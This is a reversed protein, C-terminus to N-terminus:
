QWNGIDDDNGEVGDPGASYLDFSHPLKEGPCKYIYKHGWPDDKIRIAEIYPGKWISVNSPQIILAQLGQETTPYSGSQLEYDGLAVSFTNIDMRTATIQASKTKGGLRVVAVGVLLGIIVVVLLIELLTFGGQGNRKM